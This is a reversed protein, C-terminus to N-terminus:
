KKTYIAYTPYSGDTCHLIADFVIFKRGLLCVNDNMFTRLARKRTGQKVIPRVSYVNTLSAVSGEEARFVLKIGMTAPRAKVIFDLPRDTPFRIGVSPPRFNKAAVAAPMQPMYEYALTKGRFVGAM